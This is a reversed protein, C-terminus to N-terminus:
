TRDRRRSGCPRTCRGCASSRPSGARRGAPSWAGSAGGRTPTAAGITGSASTSPESGPVTWSPSRARSWRFAVSSARWTTRPRRTTPTPRQRRQGPPRPGRSDGRVRGPASAPGACRPAALRPTPPAATSTPGGATSRWTPFTLGTTASGLVGTRRLNALLCRTVADDWQASKLLAATACTGPMPRANDADHFARERAGDCVGWSALGFTSHEPNARNDDHAISYPYWDDLIRRAIERETGGGGFALGMASEGNCDGRKTPAQPQSCDLLIRSGCGECIGHPRDAADVELPKM